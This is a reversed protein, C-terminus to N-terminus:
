MDVLAICWACRLNAYNHIFFLSLWLVDFLVPPWFYLNTLLKSLCTKGLRRKNGSAFLFYCPKAFSINLYHKRRANLIFSYMHFFDEGLLLSLHLWKLAFYNFVHKKQANFLPVFALLKVLAFTLFIHPMWANLKFARRRQLRQM